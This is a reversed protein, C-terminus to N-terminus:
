GSQSNDNDVILRQDKRYQGGRDGQEEPPAPTVIDDGQRRQDGAGTGAEDRLGSGEASEPM